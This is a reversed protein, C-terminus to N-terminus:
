HLAGEIWSGRPHARAAELDNTSDVDHLLGLSAVVQSEPNNALHRAFSGPGYAFSAEAVGGFISTGGDASPSLVVRGSEVISRPEVLDGKTLLPLDAHVVIWGSHSMRAWSVGEAAAASLGQSPDAISPIGRLLAWEAVSPDGAVVVPILDASEAIEVTREAFAQGLRLRQQPTLIEALRGKGLHFSKVPVIAVVPV